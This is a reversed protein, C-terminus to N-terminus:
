WMNKITSLTDSFYVVTNIYNSNELFNEMEDLLSDLPIYQLYKDISSDSNRPKYTAVHINPGQFNHLAQCYFPLIIM